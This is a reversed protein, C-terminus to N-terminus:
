IASTLPPAAAHLLADGAHVSAVVALLVELVELDLEGRAVPRADPLEGLEPRRRAHDEALGPGPVVQVPVLSRATLEHDHERATADLDLDAAALAAPQASAVDQEGLVGATAAM